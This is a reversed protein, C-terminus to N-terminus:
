STTKKSRCYTNVFGNEAYKLLTGRFTATPEEGRMEHPPKLRMRETSGDILDKYRERFEANM